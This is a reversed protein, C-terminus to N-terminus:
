TNAKLSMSRVQLLSNTSWSVGKLFSCLCDWLVPGVDWNQRFAAGPFRIKSWSFLYNAKTLTVIWEESVERRVMKRRSGM